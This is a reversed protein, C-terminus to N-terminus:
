SKFACNSWNAFLDTGTWQTRSPLLRRTDRGGAPKGPSRRVSAVAGRKHEEEEWSHRCEGFCPLFICIDAAVWVYNKKNLRRPFINSMEFRDILEIEIELYPNKESAEILNGNPKWILFFFFDWANLLYFSCSFSLSAYTYRFRPYFLPRGEAANASGQQAGAAATGTTPTKM